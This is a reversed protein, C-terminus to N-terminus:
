LFSLFLLLGIIVAVFLLYKGLSSNEQLTNQNQAKFQVMQADSLEACHACEELSKDYYLECRDCRKQKRQKLRWALSMGVSMFSWQAEKTNVAVCYITLLDSM